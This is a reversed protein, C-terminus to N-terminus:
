NKVAARELEEEYEKKDLARFFPVYMLGSVITTILQLIMLSVGGYLLAMVVRPTTWPVSIASSYAVLGSKFGFYAILGCVLPNLIMPFFMMANMVMPMGFVLPENINCLGPILCMKGIQKYRASKARFAMYVALGLTNGMGGAMFFIAWSAYMSPLPEGAQFAALNAMNIATIIPSVTYYIASGHIGFFWVLNMLTYLLIYFWVNEGIVMMPKQVVASVFAHVNGFTTNSFVASLVTFITTILVAAIIPTFTRSITPPVGAPMKITWGKKIIVTYLKGVSLGIILSLFLSTSGMYDYSIAKLSMATGDQAYGAIYHPTMLVFGTLAIMGAPVPDVDSDKAFYYATFFVTFIAMLDTTAEGVISFYGYIGMNKLLDIYPQFPLNGLLTFLSGAIILPMSAMVGQQMATIYRNNALKDSLPMLTKELIGTLKDMM